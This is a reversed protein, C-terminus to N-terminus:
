GEIVIDAIDYLVFNLERVVFIHCRFMRSCPFAFSADVITETCCCQKHRDRSEEELIDKIGM